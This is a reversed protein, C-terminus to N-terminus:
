HMLQASQRPNLAFPMYVFLVNVQVVNGTSFFSQLVVHSSGLLTGQQRVVTFNMFGVWIERFIDSINLIIYLFEFKHM